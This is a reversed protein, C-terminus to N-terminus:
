RPSWYGETTVWLQGHGPARQSRHGEFALQHRTNLVCLANGLSLPKMEQCGTSKVKYVLEAARPIGLLCQIILALSVSEEKEAGYTFTLSWHIM